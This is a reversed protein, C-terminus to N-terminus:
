SNERLVWGALYLSGCIMVRGLSPSEEAIAKIADTVSTTPEAKLGAARAAAASEEASLSNEEGPIAVAWVSRAVGALPTFFEGVDKSNLM